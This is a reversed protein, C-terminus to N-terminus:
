AAAEFRATLLKVTREVVRCAHLESSFECALRTAAESYLLMAVDIVSDSGAFAGVVLKETVTVCKAQAQEVAEVRAVYDIQWAPVNLIADVFGDADEGWAGFVKEINDRNSDANGSLSAGRAKHVKKKAKDFANYVVYRALSPGRGEQFKWVFRWAAVYLEQEIDELSMWSPTRWHRMINQALCRWRMRTEGVFETFDIRGARLEDLADDFRMM